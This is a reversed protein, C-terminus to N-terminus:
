LCSSVSIRTLLRTCIAHSTVFPVPLYTFPRVLPHSDIEQVDTYTMDDMRVAKVACDACM